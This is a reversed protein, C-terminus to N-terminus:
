DEKSMASSQSKLAVGLGQSVCADEMGVRWLTFNNHGVFKEVEYTASIVKFLAKTSGQLLLYHVM